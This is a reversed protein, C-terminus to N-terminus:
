EPESDRTRQETNEDAKEGQHDKVASRILMVRVDITKMKIM